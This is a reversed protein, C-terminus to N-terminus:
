GFEAPLTGGVEDRWAIGVVKVGVDVVDFGIVLRVSCNDRKVNAICALICLCSGTLTDFM